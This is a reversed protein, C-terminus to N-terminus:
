ANVKADGLVVPALQAITPNEFLTRLSLRQGFTKAIKGLLRIAILSHGGLAFFNDHIGINEKKLVEGWLTALKQETENRPTNDVASAASATPKPLASRDIKGNPTLPISHLRVWASPVMYDPLEAAMHEVLASDDVNESTPVVYGVLMEEQLAVVGQRVRSHSNLRAEIEALEVRYGRVKVQDDGRGLFEITGDPLRRTRDGTRYVREGNFDVFREATLDPRNLYGQTVGTGGILLEGPVGVPQEDNRGDVVYAHTNAIPRGVPVTQAGFAEISTLSAPTAEFTCVGVTTETPGYHNLMRCKNAALVTRALEVRLAEGGTVLWKRPLVAALDADKRGASLAQFHSPTIKLVDLQHVQTYEAFKAPETTIDKGLVHLTGGALLSPMISTNGLDAALTSALGFQWGDLQALGDGAQARPTDAFVRSIARSYHVVNANTVAVGKPTGTSGSTYLVYAVADITAVPELNDDDLAGLTAADRDLAVATKGAPVRDAYSGSTVVVGMHSERVQVAIRSAPADVSMPVYAGGAKLIGVMAVIADANADLLLGVPTNRQVGAARLHRALQNARANLETYTLTVTNVGSSSARPGVVAARSAVRAAQAEFMEVITWPKGEDVTTDNWANLEACELETLFPIANVRASPNAVATELVQALHGLFRDATAGKFLDTRYWLALELGEALESALITLDFKTGATDLEVRSVTTNGLQLEAGMTDQMTLVVRFLPAHSRAQQMELVLSELPTDQHEFAGLVTESVRSLLESFTPDGDFRVRMPLAQSFYGVMEELERRTRGAVASGVIIDDQASYRRLVTAYAALLVMYTTAGSRQALSKVAAHTAPPLMITRHAGSFGQVAPRPRDTPLELVPLADLRERWYALATNLADGQLTARQWAAYDGFQLAAPALERQSDSVEADYLASLDRFIVGYSWADSVIHHTLLLLIHDDNALRAIATRFGPEKSLEFPSDAVGRLAVMAANLRAGAPLSSLDHVVLSVAAPHIVQASSEGRTEFVTRLAEHREVLKSLARELAELDLPGQVRRALASNYATLGPTARDLLWLVEQAYTLPTAASLDRPTIEAAAPADLGEAALLEALLRRREDELTANLGHEPPKTTDRNM